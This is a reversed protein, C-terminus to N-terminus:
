RAHELFLRRQQETDMQLLNRLMAIHQQHMEANERGARMMDALAARLEEITMADIPKGRYMIPTESM